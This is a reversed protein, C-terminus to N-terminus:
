KMYISTTTKRQDVRVDTKVSTIEQNNVTVTPKVPSYWYYGTVYIYNWEDKLYNADVFLHVADSDWNANQPNEDEDFWIADEMYYLEYDGDANETSFYISHPAAVIARNTNIIWYAALLVAVILAVLIFIKMKKKM